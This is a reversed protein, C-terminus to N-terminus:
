VLTINVAQEEVGLHGFIFDLISQYVTAAIHLCLLTLLPLMQELEEFESETM